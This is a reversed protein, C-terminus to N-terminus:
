ITLYEAFVSHVPFLEQRLSRPIVHNRSVPSSDKLLTM